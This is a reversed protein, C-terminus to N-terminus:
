KLTIAYCSPSESKRSVCLRYKQPVLKSLDIEVNITKGDSSQASTKKVAAGYADELFVGYEGAASGEPLTIAFAVTTKSVESTPNEGNKGGRQVRYNNFDIEIRSRANEAPLDSSQQIQQTSPNASYTRGNSAVDGRSRNVRVYWIWVGVVILLVLFAVTPALVSPRMFAVLAQWGTGVTVPDKRVALADHYLQFCNSCGFLHRRLEDSPPKHTSILEKFDDPAPCRTRSPNPFDTSFYDRAFATLEEDNESAPLFERHRQENSM